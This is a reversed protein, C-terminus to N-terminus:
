LSTTYDIDEANDNGEITCRLRIGLQFNIAVQIREKDFNMMM